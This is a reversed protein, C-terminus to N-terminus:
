STHKRQAIKMLHPRRSTLAGDVLIDPCEPRRLVYAMISGGMAVDPEAEGLAYLEVALQPNLEPRADAFALFARWRYHEAHRDESSLWQARLQNLLELTVIGLEHWQDTFGLLDSDLAM